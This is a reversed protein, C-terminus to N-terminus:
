ICYLIPIQSSKWYAETKQEEEEPEKAVEFNQKYAKLNEQARTGFVNQKAPIPKNAEAAAAKDLLVRTIEELQQELNKNSIFDELSMGNLFEADLLHFTPATPEQDEIDPALTDVLEQKLAAMKSELEYADDGGKADSAEDKEEQGKNPEVMKKVAKNFIVQVGEKSADQPFSEEIEKYQSDSVIPDCEIRHVDKRVRPVFAVDQCLRPTAIVMQYECTAFEHVSVIEDESQM